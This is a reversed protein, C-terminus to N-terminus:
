SVDQSFVGADFPRACHITITGVAKDEAIFLSRHPTYSSIACDTLPFVPGTRVAVRSFVQHM